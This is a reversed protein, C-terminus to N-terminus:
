TYFRLRAESLVMSKGKTWYPPSISIDHYFIAKTTPKFKGSLMASAIGLCDAWAKDKANPTKPTGSNWCSFQKPKRCVKAMQETNGEARNYIVSAVAMKNTIPEGAAEEYITLAIILEATM